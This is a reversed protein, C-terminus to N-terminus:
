LCTVFRDFVKARTALGRTSYNTRRPSNKLREVDIKITAALIASSGDFRIRALRFLPRALLVTKWRTIPMSLIELPPLILYLLDQM